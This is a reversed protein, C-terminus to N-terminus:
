GVFILKLGAIVLVVSLIERLQVTRARRTGLESGLFAGVVVVGIWLPLAPPLSALRALNGALGSLSNALIFAAAIGSAARTEAWGTLLLVPSLFIGGGTGTLGSLLGIGAGIAVAPVAPVRPEAHGTDAQAARRATRFLQIAAVILVAGVLQKYIAGSIPLSGGIFALPISGLVFPGLSRWSIYGRRWFRFTVFSAVVINLALATPRAVDPVVGLLGMAALYASAGAHGVSSYLVAAGFFLAALLLPDVV